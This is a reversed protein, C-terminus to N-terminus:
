YYWSEQVQGVVRRGFYLGAIDWRAKRSSDWPRPIKETMGAEARKAEEKAHAAMPYERQLLVKLDGRATVLPQGVARCHIPALIVATDTLMKKSMRSMDERMREMGEAFEMWYPLEIELRIVKGALAHFPYDAFCAEVPPGYQFPDAWGKSNRADWACTHAM